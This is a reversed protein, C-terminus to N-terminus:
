HFHNSLSSHATHFRVPSLLNPDVVGNMDSNSMSEVGGAIAVDYFGAKIAGAVDAVAQLGSSCQCVRALSPILLPSGTPQRHVPPHDGAARFTIPLLSAAVADSRRSISGHPHHSCCRWPM